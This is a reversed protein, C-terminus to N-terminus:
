REALMRNIDRRMDPTIVGTNAALEVAEARDAEDLEADSLLKQYAPTVELTAEAAAIEVEIHSVPKAKKRIKEMARKSGPPKVRLVVELDLGDALALFKSTVTDKTRGSTLDLLVQTGVGPLHRTANLSLGKEKVRDVLVQVWDDATVVKEKVINM